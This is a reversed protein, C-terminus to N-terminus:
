AACTNAEIFADLDEPFVRTKPRAGSVKLEVAGLKGAAILRYVHHRSCDFQEAVSAVWLLQTRRLGEPVNGAKGHGRATM